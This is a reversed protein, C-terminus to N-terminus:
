YQGYFLINRFNTKCHYFQLMSHFYIVNRRVGQIENKTQKQSVKM